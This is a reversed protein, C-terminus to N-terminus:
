NGTPPIIKLALECAGQMWDDGQWQLWDTQNPPSIYVQTWEKRVQISVAGGQETLHKILANCDNADTFPDPIVTEYCPIRFADRHGDPRKYCYRYEHEVEEFEWGMAEALRVRDQDSQIM